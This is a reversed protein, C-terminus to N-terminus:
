SCRQQRRMKVHIADSDNQRRLIPLLRLISISHYAFEVISVVEGESASQKPDNVQYKKTKSVTKGYVPHKFTRKVEVVITTGNTRVVRGNLKRGRSDTM